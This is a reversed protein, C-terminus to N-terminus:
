VDVVTGVSWPRYHAPLLHCLPQLEQEHRRRRKADADAERAVEAAVSGAQVAARWATRNIATSEWQQVDIAAAKFHKKMCDSYRLIPRGVNRKSNFLESYMVAKPM